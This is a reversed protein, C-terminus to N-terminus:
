LIKSFIPRSRHIGIRFLLFAAFAYQRWQYSILVCVCRCICEYLDSCNTPQPQAVILIQLLINRINIVEHQQTKSPFYMKSHVIHLGQGEGERWLLLLNGLSHISSHTPCCFTFSFIYKLLCSCFWLLLLLLRTTHGNDSTWALAM